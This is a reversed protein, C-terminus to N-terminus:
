SSSSSSTSSDSEEASHADEIGDPWCQRCLDTYESASPLEHLLEYEKFDVGPRRWCGPISHLCRRRSRTSISVVFGIPRGRAAAEDKEEQEQKHAESM